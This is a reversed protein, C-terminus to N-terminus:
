AASAGTLWRGPNDITIRDITAAAVGRERLVPLVRRHIFAIGDPNADIHRQQDVATLLGAWIPDDHAVVIRDEFGMEILDVIMDIRDAVTRGGYEPLAGCPLRDMGIIFGRSALGTLYGIDHTDDSHGIVVRGPPVGLAEFIDAQAEGIRNRAAAHTIIAAGTERHAIAVAELVRRDFDTVEEESAVKMVGCRIATGDAGHQLDAVFIAALESVTRNLMFVSPALWHGTAAIIGVGSRASVAALLEVDRGLDFTTADVITRVGAERAAVLPGIARDALGDVGGISGTLSRIAGGTACAVHEHVLTSGLESTARFGTVTQVGTAVDSEEPASVDTSPLGV